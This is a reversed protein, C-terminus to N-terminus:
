LLICLIRPGEKTGTSSFGVAQATALDIRTLSSTLIAPPAPVNLVPISSTSVSSPAARRGRRRFIFFNLGKTTHLPPLLPFSLFLLHMLV